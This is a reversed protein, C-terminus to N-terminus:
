VHSELLARAHLVLLAHMQFRGGSLPELLGRNVLIRATPKPDDVDWLAAMAQLDFTAPKPVFLGLDGFRQRTLPDLADTSRRLLAAITPTTDNWRGMMDGPAQAKLLRTGERLEGLLDSVGWGLQMESDLLRGAVQIALPLGELNRILERSEDPYEDVAQPALAALLQLGSEETLLALRYIDQPTPALARAVENLRSTVIFGCNQGGVRFPTVHETQWVDDLIILMRRDRLAATLISSIEELAFSSKNDVVQLAKAWTLLEPLLNPNEGLSAWLVGDPFARPIEADHSLAAVLTSKGVGPWGQIVTIPRMEGSPNIGIRRKLDQLVMERGVVLGPLPPLTGIPAATHSPVTGESRIEEYLATTEEEPPTALEDNLLDVCEQYQRLAEARQGNATYLRMLMRHAPEHLPDLSLWRRAYGLAVEYSAIRKDGYYGALQRLIEGCERRLAERQFGQWEDYEASDNLSFGALFDDQYLDLAEEFLRVCTECIIDHPHTHTRRQALCDHFARVDVWIAEKNLVLTDRKATFVDHPFLATLSHLASRLAGRAREQDLEPWLLTAITDRSQPQQTIALYAVLAISKRRPVDLIAGQYEFRPANFLYVKLADTDL